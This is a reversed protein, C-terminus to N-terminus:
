APTPQLQAGGQAGFAWLASHQWHRPPAQLVAMALPPLAPEVALLLLSVLPHGTIDLLALIHCPTLPPVTYALPACRALPPGPQLTLELPVFIQCPILPLVTHALPVCLALPPGLQLTPALPM